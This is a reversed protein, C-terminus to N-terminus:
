SPLSSIIASAFFRPAGQSSTRQTALAPRNGTGFKEAPPMAVGALAASIICSPASATKTPEPMKLDDSGARRAFAMTCAVVCKLSGSTSTRTLSSRPSAITPRSVEFIASFSRSCVRPQYVPCRQHADADEGELAVEREVGLRQLPAAGIRHLHALGLLQVVDVLGHHGALARHQYRREMGLQGVIRRHM